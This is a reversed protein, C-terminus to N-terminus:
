SGKNSLKKRVFRFACIAIAGVLVYPWAVITLVVGVVILALIVLLLTTIM